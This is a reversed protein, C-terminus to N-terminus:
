PQVEGRRAHLLHRMHIEERILDEALARTDPELDLTPLLHDVIHELLALSRPASFLDAELAGLQSAQEAVERLTQRASAQRRSLLADFRAGQRPSVPQVDGLSRTRAAAGTSDPLLPPSEIRM